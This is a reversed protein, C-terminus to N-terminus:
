WRTLQIRKVSMQKEYKLMLFLLFYLRLQASPPNHRQKGREKWEQDDEKSLLAQRRSPVKSSGHTM